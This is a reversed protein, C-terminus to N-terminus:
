VVGTAAALGLLVASGSLAAALLRRSIVQPFMLTSVLVSVAIGALAAVAGGTAEWQPVTLAATVAFASFGAGTACARLGPRLRLAAAQTAIATLPALPLTALAIAMAPEAGEFEEGFVVPVVLPVLCVGVAALAFAGGLSLAGLHQLSREALSVDPQDRTAAVLGPLQVTFLQWIVYTGAM